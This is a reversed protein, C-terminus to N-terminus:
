ELARFLIGEVDVKWPTVELVDPRRGHFRGTFLTEVNNVLDLLSSIVDMQVSVMWYNPM